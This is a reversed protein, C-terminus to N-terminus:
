GWLPSPSAPVTQSHCPAPLLKPSHLRGLCHWHESPTDSTEPSRHPLLKSLVAVAPLHGLLKTSRVVSV